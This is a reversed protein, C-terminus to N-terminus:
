HDLYLLRTHTHTHRHTRVIAKAHFSRQRLYKAHHNMKLKGLDSEFILTM